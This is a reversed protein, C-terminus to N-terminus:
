IPDVPLLSLVTFPVAYLLPRLLPQRENVNWGMEVTVTEEVGQLRSSGRQEGTVNYSRCDFTIGDKEKGTTYKRARCANSM